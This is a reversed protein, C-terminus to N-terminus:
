LTSSLKLYFVSRQLIHLVAFTINFMYKVKYKGDVILECHTQLPAAVGSNNYMQLLQEEVFKQLVRLDVRHEFLWTTNELLETEWGVSQIGSV